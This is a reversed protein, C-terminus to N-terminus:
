QRKSCMLMSFNANLESNSPLQAAAESSAHCYLNIINTAEQFTGVTMIDRGSVSINRWGSSKLQVGMVGRNADTRLWIAQWIM